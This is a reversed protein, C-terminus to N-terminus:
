NGSEERWREAQDELQFYSKELELFKKHWHEAQKRYFETLEKESMNDDM